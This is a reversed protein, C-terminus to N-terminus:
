RPASQPPPRLYARDTSRSELGGAMPFSRVDVDDLDLKGLIRSAADAVARALDLLDGPVAGELHWNPETPASPEHWGATRLAAEQWGSLADGRPVNVNSLVEAIVTGGGVAVQVYRHDEFEAIAVLPRPDAGMAALLEPLNALFSGVTTRRPIGDAAIFRMVPDQVASAVGTAWPACIPDRM